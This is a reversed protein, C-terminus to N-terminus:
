LFFVNEPGTARGCDTPYTEAAAQRQAPVIHPSALVGLGRARWLVGFVGRPRALVRLGEGRVLRPLLYDQRVTTWQKM